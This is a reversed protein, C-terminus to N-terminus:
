GSCNSVPKDTLYILAEPFIVIRVISKLVVFAYPYWHSWPYLSLLTYMLRFPSCLFIMGPRALELQVDFLRFRAGSRASDMALSDKMTSLPLFTSRWFAERMQSMASTYMYSWAITKVYAQLAFDVHHPLLCLHVLRVHSPLLPFLM